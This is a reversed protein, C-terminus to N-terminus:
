IMTFSAKLWFTRILSWFMKYNSTMFNSNYLPFVKTDLPEVTCRVRFNQITMRVRVGAVDCSDWSHKATGKGLSMPRARILTTVVQPLRALVEKTIIALLFQAVGNQIVSAGCFVATTLISRFVFHPAKLTRTVLLQSLILLVLFLLM